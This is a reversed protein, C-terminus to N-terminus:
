PCSLMFTRFFHTSPQTSLSVTTMTTVLLSLHSHHYVQYSQTAAAIVLYTTSLFTVLIFIFPQPPQCLFRLVVPVLHLRGANRRPSTLIYFTQHSSFLQKTPLSYVGWSGTYVCSINLSSVIKKAWLTLVFIDLERHQGDIPSVYCWRGGHKACPLHEKLQRLMDTVDISPNEAVTDGTPEKHKLTKATAPLKVAPKQTNLTLLFSLCPYSVSVLNHIM